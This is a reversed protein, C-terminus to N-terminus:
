FGYRWGVSFVQDTELQPGNLDREIPISYEVGLEHGKLAGSGAINVGLLFDTTEGGQFDPNATQVPGVIQPDIGDIKDQDKYVLRASTSLWHKWKYAAWTTVQQVDGLTYGNDEGTRFTGQYQAGLQLRDITATYTLGALIDETGSGLQMPYPLRVKPTAGMPTLITDREDTSGTSISLGANLHLHHMGQEYLRYLGTVKTDGFGSTRTTFGGIRATGMPNFTIHDMSKKLYSGMIMLTFDDTPAYMAGFMHMDMTMDTPVIRLNPPQMPAGFFRNPVNAVIYEPSVGDEGIRNGEMDMTMFRYSFMWGGKPHMHAGMVGFPAPDIESHAHHGSHHSHDHGGAMASGCAFLLGCAVGVPQKFRTFM